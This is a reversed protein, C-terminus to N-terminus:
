SQRKAMQLFSESSVAEAWLFGQALECGMEVLCQHTAEDEVGEAVTHLGLSKSLQIIAHVLSQSQQDLSLDKVFSQDIKLCGIAFRKLYALNSYGTGFDDISIHVGMNKIKILDENFREDNELLLSETLEIELYQGDLQYKKLAKFIIEPVDSRKFQVASVNVAVKLNPKGSNHWLKCDKCAQNLVWEGIQLILGSNEAVPIFREPSINQMSEHQWRILAEAGVVQKTKLDIKAQYNVSFDTNKIAKRMDSTLSVYDNLKGNMEEDFFKICNRGAEKAHYMAIDANKLLTKPELADDPSLTIGISCTVVIDNVGTQIPESINKLVKTALSTVQTESHLGEVILLFEDGGQRCVSDTVRVSSKLRNAIIQLVEDGADHGLTDNIHKFFDIDIFMLAMIKQNRKNRSLSQMLLQSAMGRNALETLSDHNALHEAKDKAKRTIVNEKKVRLVLNRIDTSLVWISVALVVNIVVMDFTVSFASVSQHQNSLGAYELYGLVILSTFVLMILSLFMPRKALIAILIFLGPYAILAPDHIGQGQWALLTLILWLYYIFITSALKLHKKRALIILGPLALVSGIMIQLSAAPGSSDIQNIISLM